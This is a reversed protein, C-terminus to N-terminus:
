DRRDPVPTRAPVALRTWANIEAVVFMLVRLEEAALHAEVEDLVADPVGRGAMLTVADAYALAARERDSFCSAEHWGALVDLRSQSEGAARADRAHMDLCYACGNLQAVRVRVLEVLRAELAGDNVARTLAFMADRAPEFRLYQIRQRTASTM